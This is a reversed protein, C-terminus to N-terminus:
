MRSLEKCKDIGKFFAKELESNDKVANVIAETIGGKTAMKAIYLEKEARTLSRPTIDHAWKLLDEIYRVM